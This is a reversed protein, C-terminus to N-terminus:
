SKLNDNRFTVNCMRYKTTCHMAFDFFPQCQTFNVFSCKCFCIMSKFSAYRLSWIPGGKPCNERCLTHPGVFVDRLEFDLFHAFHSKFTHKKSKWISAAFKHMQPGYNQIQFKLCGHILHPIQMRPIFESYSEVHYYRM